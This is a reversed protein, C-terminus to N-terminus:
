KNNLWELRNNIIALYNDLFQTDSFLSEARCRSNKGFEIKKESSLFYFAVIARAIDNPDHPSFLLGNVGEEVLMANDGVRSALVPKGCAMAECIVNACGEYFSPLCLADTEQLLSVVEKSPEHLRFVNHLSRKNIENSLQSKKLSNPSRDEIFDKGYWDVQVHIDPHTKKMLSIAELLGM